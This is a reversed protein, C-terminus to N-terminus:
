TTGSEPADSEVHRLHIKGCLTRKTSRNAKMGREYEEKREREEKETEERERERELQRENKGEGRAREKEPDSLKREPSCSTV